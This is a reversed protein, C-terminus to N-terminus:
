NSGAQSLLEALRTLMDRQPAFELGQAVESTQQGLQAVLGAADGSGSQLTGALAELTTVVPVLDPDDLSILRQKWGEINAIAAEVPINALGGELVAITGEVNPEVATSDGSPADIAEGGTTGGTVDGGTMSGGTMAGGTMAGGTMSGGTESGGTMGGTMDGGTMGGGTASSFTDSINSLDTMGGSISPAETQPSSDAGAQAALDGLAYNMVHFLYNQEATGRVLYASPGVAYAAIDTGDHTESSLPIAAQQFFDKAETDVGTLDPREGIFAGPGNYFGLTTYPKEDAAFTLEDVPLGQDDLGKVLGLIPNGRQPYGAMDMTHAHDATVIILTDDLNVKDLATQVANGFEINDTLTRFANTGHSAHDVRGSEVQLIYGQENQSLIDIAKSVMESLAPEGGVDEARDAEYEMHSANFLGLVPGTTAPDIADFGEQNWIYVAGDRGDVWAQTLDRGDTRSGTGEADEPDTVTEPLFHRRGGGLAVDLGDGYPFEILQRAIDVCELGSTDIGYVEAALQLAANYVQASESLTSDDEWDRDASHAYNAAPTAHTIRATSVTGTAMGATEALEFLTTLRNAQASICDGRLTDPGVGLVGQKTKIGTSWATATGASDAVQANTNYTKILAVNPFTDYPLINEEGQMGKIQGALIRTATVTTPGAGDAIFIIVNKAENTNPQVALMQELTQQGQAYYPDSTQSMAPSGGTAGGMAGGTAGGTVGGTQALSMGAGVTLGLTCSLAALGFRRKSRKTLM